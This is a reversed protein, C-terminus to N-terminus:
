QQIKKVLQQIRYLEKLGITSEFLRTPNYEIKQVNSIRINGVKISSWNQELDILQEETVFEDIILMPCSGNYNSIHAKCDTSYLVTYSEGQM